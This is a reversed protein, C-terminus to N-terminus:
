ILLQVESTVDSMLNKCRPLATIELQDLRFSRSLWELDFWGNKISESASSKMYKISPILNPEHFLDADSSPM